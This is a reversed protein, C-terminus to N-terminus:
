AIGSPMKFGPLFLPTPSLNFAISAGNVNTKSKTIGILIQTSTPEELISHPLFSAEPFKWLLEDLYDRAREDEVFFLIPEKKAFHNKAIQAICRLKSATDPVQFFIVRTM